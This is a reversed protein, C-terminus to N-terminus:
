TSFMIMSRQRREINLLMYLDVCIEALREFQPYKCCLDSLWFVDWNFELDNQDKSYVLKKAMSMLGQRDSADIDNKKEM